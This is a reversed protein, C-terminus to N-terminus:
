IEKKKLTLFQSAQQIIHVTLGHTLSGPIMVFLFSWIPCCQIADPGFSVCASGSLSCMSGIEWLLSLNVGNGRQRSGKVM